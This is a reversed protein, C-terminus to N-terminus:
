TNEMSTVLLAHSTELETDDALCSFTRASLPNLSWSNSNYCEMPPSPLSPVATAALPLVFHGDVLPRHMQQQNRLSLDLDDNGKRWEDHFIFVGKTERTEDETGFCGCITWGWGSSITEEILRSVWCAEPQKKKNTEAKGWSCIM